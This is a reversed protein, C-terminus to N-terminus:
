IVNSSGLIYVLGNVMLTVWSSTGSESMRSYKQVSFSRSRACWGLCYDVKSSAPTQRLLSPGSAEPRARVGDVFRRSFLFKIGLRLRRRPAVRNAAKREVGFI